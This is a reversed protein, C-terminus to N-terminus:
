VAPPNFKDIEIRSATTIQKIREDLDIQEVRINTIKTSVPQVVPQVEKLDSFFKAAMEAGWQQRETDAQEVIDYQGTTPNPKNSKGWRTAVLAEAIVRMYKDRTIGVRNLALEKQSTNNVKDITEIPNDKTEM